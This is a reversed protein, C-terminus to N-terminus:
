YVGVWTLVGFVNQSGHNIEIRIDRLTCIRYYIKIPLRYNITVNASYTACLKHQWHFRWDCEDTCTSILYYPFIIRNKRLLPFSHPWILIIILYQALILSKTSTFTGHALVWLQESWGWTTSLPLREIPATLNCYLIGSCPCFIQLCGSDMGRCM